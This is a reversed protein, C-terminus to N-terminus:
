VSQPTCSEEGLASDKPARDLIVDTVAPLGIDGPHVEPPKEPLQRSLHEDAIDKWAKCNPNIGLEILLNDGLQKLAYLYRMLGDMRNAQRLLVVKTPTHMTKRMLTSYFAKCSNCKGCNDDVGFSECFTLHQALDPNVMELVNAKEVNRLPSLCKPHNDMSWYQPHFTQLAGLYALKFTDDFKNEDTLLIGTLVCSTDLKTNIAAATAHAWPQQYRLRIDARASVGDIPQVIHNRINHEYKALITEYAKKERIRKNAGTSEYDVYVVDFVHNSEVLLQAILSSDFGGSLVLLPVGTPLHNLISHMLIDKTNEM